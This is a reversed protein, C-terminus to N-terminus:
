YYMPKGDIQMYFEFAYQKQQEDLLFYDAPTHHQRILDKAFLQFCETFRQLNYDLISADVRYKAILSNMFAQHHDRFYSPIDNKTADISYVLPYVGPQRRARQVADLRKM